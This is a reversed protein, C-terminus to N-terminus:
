AAAAVVMLALVFSFLVAMGVVAVAFGLLVNVLVFMLMVM